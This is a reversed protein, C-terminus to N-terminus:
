LQDHCKVTSILPMLNNFAEDPEQNTSFELFITRSTKKCKFLFKVTTEKIRKGFFLNKRREKASIYYVAEHSFLNLCGKKLVNEKKTEKELWENVKLKENYKKTKVLLSFYKQEPLRILAGTYGSVAWKNGELEIWEEVDTRYFLPSVSWEEPIKFYLFSVKGILFNDTEISVNKLEM